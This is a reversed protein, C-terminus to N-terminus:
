SNNKESELFDTFKTITKVLLKMKNIFDQDTDDYTKHLRAKVNCDSIELFTEKHKKTKSNWQVDGHFAVVSGTSTSADKNLWVRKSYMGM